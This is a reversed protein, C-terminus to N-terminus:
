KETTIASIPIKKVKASKTVLYALDNNLCKCLYMSLANDMWLLLADIQYGLNKALKRRRVCDRVLHDIISNNGKELSRDIIHVEKGDLYRGIITM